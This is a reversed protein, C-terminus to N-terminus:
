ILDFILVIYQLKYEHIVNKISYEKSYLLFSLELISHSIDILFEGKYCNEDINSHLFIIDGELEM